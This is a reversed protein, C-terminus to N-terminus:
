LEVWVHDGSPIEDICRWYTGAVEGEKTGHYHGFYWREPKVLERVHELFKMNGDIFDLRGGLCLDGVDFSAPCEHSIVTHINEAGVNEITDLVREQDAHSLNEEPFWDWGRRRHIRDISRAGGIYLVGNEYDGRRKYDWVELMERWSGFNPNNYAINEGLGFYPEDLKALAEHDEHNGCIFYAPHDFKKTWGRAGRFRPWFGTDGAIILLDPKQEKTAVHYVREALAFEGHTDGFILALM